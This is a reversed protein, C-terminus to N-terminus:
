TFQWGEARMLELFTLCTVGEQACVYPIKRNDSSGPTEESVVIWSPGGDRAMAIVFPDAGSIGKLPKGPDHHTAMLRLVIAQVSTSEEVFLSTQSKAWSHCSDGPKIEDYVAKPARLRGAAILDEVRLLLGPFIAPPYREVFWLIISSTDICYISSPV